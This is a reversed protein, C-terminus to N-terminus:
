WSEGLVEWWTLRWRGSADREFYLPHDEEDPATVVAADGAVQYTMFGFLVPLMAEAEPPVDEAMAELAVVVLDEFADFPMAAIIGRRDQSAAQFAALDLHGLATEADGTVMATFFTAFDDRLSQEAESRSAQLNSQAEASTGAIFLFPEGSAEIEIVRGGAVSLYAPPETGVRVEIRTMEQLRGRIERRERGMRRARATVTDGNRRMVALEHSDREDWDLAGLMPFLLLETVTAPSVTLDRENQLPPLQGTGSFFEFRYRDDLLRELRLAEGSTPGDENAGSRDASLTRVGFDDSYEGYEDITERFPGVAVLFQVDGAMGSGTDYFQYHLTGINQEGVYIGFWLEAGELESEVRAFLEHASFTDPSQAVAPVVVMGILVALSTARISSRLWELVM